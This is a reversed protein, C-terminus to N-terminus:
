GLGAQPATLASLVCTETDYLAFRGECVAGVVVLFREPPSLTYPHMEDWDLLGKTNALRRSHYHGMFFVRGKGAEFCRAIQEDTEFVGDYYWLDELRHPDLWPEVHSFFCDDIELSPKLSGLLGRVNSSYKAMVEDDADVCFGFDHNGWVGQAGTESLLEVTEEIREGMEFIDGLVIYSDAGESRLVDLAAALEDVAEHIDAILGLRM